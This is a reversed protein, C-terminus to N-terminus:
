MWLIAFKPWQVCIGQRKKITRKKFFETELPTSFWSKLLNIFLLNRSIDVVYNILEFMSNVCQTINKFYSFECGKAKADCAYSNAFSIPMYLDLEM